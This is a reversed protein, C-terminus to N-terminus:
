LRRTLEQEARAQREVAEAVETQLKAYASGAAEDKWQITGDSVNWEGWRSELLALMEKLKVWVLADLNRIAKTPGIVRGFGHDFGARFDRRQQATLTSRDLEASVDADVRLIRALIEANLRELHELDARRQSIDNRNQITVFDFTQKQAITGVLKLYESGQQQLPEVIKLSVSLASRSPEGLRALINDAMKTKEQMLAVRKDPDDTAIIREAFEKQNKRFEELLKRDEAEGAHVAAPLLVAFLFLHLRTRM